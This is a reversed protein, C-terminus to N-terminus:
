ITIQIKKLMSELEDKYDPLNKIGEQVLSEMYSIKRKMKIARDILGKYVLIDRVKNKILKEGTMVVKQDDDSLLHLTHFYLAQSEFSWNSIETQEFLDFLINLKNFKQFSKTISKLIEYKGNSFKFASKLAETGKESDNCTLFYKGLIALGAALYIQMEISPSEITHFIKLYNIIDEYKQNIISLRILEPIKEPPTPYKNAMLLNTNYAKIYDKKQYYLSSLNKLSKFFESNHYISEEYCHIAEDRLNNDSYIKGLFYHGEYPHKHLSLATQFSEAASDLQGKIYRDRGEEIKKSYPSPTLKHKVGSILTDIITFGTFPVSIIGDMDYELALAVEAQSNEETIIFFGSNMRNPFAKMHSNFLSVTSGGNINKNGIVFHPKKSNLLNEADIFNDADYMNSMKSGLQAITKKLSNRTSSSVEVVLWTKNEFYDILAKNKKDNPDFLVSM